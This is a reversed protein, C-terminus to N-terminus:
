EDIRQLREDELDITLDNGADKADDDDDGDDEDHNCREESLDTDESGVLEEEVRPLQAPWELVEFLFNQCLTEIGASCRACDLLNEVQAEYDEVDYREAVTPDVFRAFGWSKELGQERLLRKAWHPCQSSALTRQLKEEERREHSARRRRKTEKRANALASAENTEYYPARLQEIKSFLRESYCGPVLCPGDLTEAVGALVRMEPITKDRWYRHDLLRLEGSTLQEPSSVARELIAQRSLLTSSALNAALADPNPFDLIAQREAETLGVNENDNELREFLALIHSPDSLGRQVRVFSPVIVDM